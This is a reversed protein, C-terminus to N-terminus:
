DERTSPPHPGLGKDEEPVIHLVPYTVIALMGLFGFIGAIPGVILVGLAHGPSNGFYNMSQTALLISGGMAAKWVFGSLGNYLAERRQGSRTEDYDIIEGIMPTMMAYMFGQGIGCYGFVIKALLQKMDVSLGSVGIWYISPLGTTIILLAIAMVWKKHLVRAIFSVGGISLIAMIIFPLLLETVMGEDGSLSLEVWYPLVRQVALFGVNFLVFAFTYVLFLRNRFADVFGSFSPLQESPIAESDYREKILWVPFQFLVFSVLALIAALRRYGIASYSDAVRAPDLLVILKGPLAAALALGLILGIATWVGIRVRAQESRAIEPGLANLPTLALGFMTWHLCLLLTGYLFNIFSTQAVPPYWFAISTAIMLISGWFIFPRRRGAPALFAFRGRRTKTRDSWMGILPGTFADWTTGIIFIYGVLGVTVYITRGVGASPSYFYTGWQNMVESSLQVGIMALCISLGEIWSFEQQRHKTIV